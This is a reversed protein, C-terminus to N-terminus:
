PWNKTPTIFSGGSEVAWQWYSGAALYDGELPLLLINVPISPALARKAQIFLRLREKGSVNKRVKGDGLTPLGDTILFINDPRPEMAMATEIAQQLHTGHAPIQQQLALLHQEIQISDSVAYWRNDDSDDVTYTQSNFLLLQYDSQLPLNSMIWHAIRIARQWKPAYQQDLTSSNRRLLVNIITEDLMSASSDLLILVQQGGLKLGTLYQRKGEGTFSLAKKGSGQQQKQIVIQQKLKELEQKLTDIEQQQQQNTKHKTRNLTDLSDMINKALDEAIILEDSVDALTNELTILQQQESQIEQQLLAIELVVSGRGETGEGEGPKLLIFVLAVAGLGCSMIDLFALHHPAFRRLKM